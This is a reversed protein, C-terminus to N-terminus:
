KSPKKKINKQVDPQNTIIILIYNLSKLYKITSLFKTNIKFEEDTIPAYPKGNRVIAKNLIGDRDLFFAKAM